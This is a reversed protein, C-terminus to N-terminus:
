SNIFTQRIYTKVHTNIVTGTSTYEGIVTCTSLSSNFEAASCDNTMGCLVACELYSSVKSVYLDTRSTAQLEGSVTNGISETADNK